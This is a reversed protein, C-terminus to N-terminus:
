ARRLYGTKKLFIRVSRLYAKGWPGAEDPAPKNLDGRHYAAVVRRWAARGNRANYSDALYAALIGRLNVGKQKRFKLYLRYYSAAERAALKPYGITVDVLKGAEWDYIRLPRPTDVNSGYHYAFRYDLSRFEPVGNNNLDKLVYEFSLGTPQLHKQIYSNTAQDYRWSETYGCCNAGGTYFDALVEPEGDGDLDRVTVSRAAAVGIAAPLDCSAACDTALDQDFLRQGARDIAMHLSEVDYGGFRSKKYDYSFTATTNGSTVVEDKHLAFASSPMALVLAAPLAALLWRRLM